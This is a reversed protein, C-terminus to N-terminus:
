FGEVGAMDPLEHAIGKHCDICTKEGSALSTSHMQSARTSQRTFDMYDFNHCNRCELSDNAKLRKWEHEALERRKGEFKERTNITGFITGWVEKSAQMKRAIKDTWNHPVHCDPCTARVGSRNTFHITSQLEKYVNNEMEHCSICFQESNSLELATNFGGWFIVGAIFGGITLFGLSYHVSPRRLVKWVLKLQEFM